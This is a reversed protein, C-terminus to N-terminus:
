AVKARKYGNENTLPAPNHGLLEDLATTVDEATYPKRVFRGKAPLKDQMNLGSAVILHIPPWRNRIAHALKLGDMSGSMNIDTFVVGINSQRELIGIAEDANCAEVVPYGADEIIHVASMRILADEEVILVIPKAM